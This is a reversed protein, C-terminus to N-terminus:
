EYVGPDYVPAPSALTYVYPVAGGLPALGPAHFKTADLSVTVIYHGDYEDSTIVCFQTRTTGALHCGPIDQEIYLGQSFAAFGSAEATEWRGTQTDLWGIKTATSYSVAGIGMIRGAVSIITWPTGKSGEVASPAGDKDQWLWVSDSSGIYTGAETAIESNPGPIVKGYV